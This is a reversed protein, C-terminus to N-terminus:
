ENKRRKIYDLRDLEVGFTWFLITIELYINGWKGYYITNSGIDIGFGFSRPKYMIDFEFKM